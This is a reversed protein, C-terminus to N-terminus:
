FRAKMEDDTLEGRESMELIKMAEAVAANWEDVSIKKRNKEPDYPRRLTLYGSIMFFLPVGIRSAANIIVLPIFKKSEIAGGAYLYAHTIHILVVLVCSLVRIRVIHQDFSKAKKEM